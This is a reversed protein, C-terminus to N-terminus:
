LNIAARIIFEHEWHNWGLKSWVPTVSSSTAGTIAPATGGFANLDYNLMVRFRRTYWYTLGLETSTLRTHGALPNANAAQDSTIDEDIHEVRALLQLGHRPPRVGFRGLRPPLQLNPRGVITDDGIIWAWAQGYLAYGKLKGGGMWKPSSATTVDYEGLGQKKFVYEFRVGYRHSIPADLEFAYAELSGNQHMEYPAAGVKWTPDFFKFGAATSQSALILANTRQGLWFSGGVTIYRLANIKTLAFPAVFARGAVDFKSDANKYNMGEGNFVGLSYYFAENPLLGHVMFGLDKTPPVAFARISNSKEIFDLYKDTLRNEWTFPLDFQGLQLIVSDKWAGKFPAVLIFNDTANLNAQGTGPAASAFDGSINFGVHQGIWGFLELRARKLVFGDFPMKPTDRKFADYDVQLRGNPFFVFTNDPSRLFAADNSVGALPMSLQPETEQAWAPGALLAFLACLAFPTRQSM